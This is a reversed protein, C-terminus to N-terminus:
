RNTASAGLQSYPNAYQGYINTATPAGTLNNSANNGNFNSVPTFNMFPNSLESSPNTFGGYDM